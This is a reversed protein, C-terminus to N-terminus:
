SQRGHRRSRPQGQGACFRIKKWGAKSKSTGAEADQLSVEENNDKLWTHSLIAYARAEESTFERFVFGGDPKCELLRTPPMLRPSAVNRLWVSNSCSKSWPPTLDIEIM